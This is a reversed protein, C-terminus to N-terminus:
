FRGELGAPTRRDIGDRLRPWEKKSGASITFVFLNFEIIISIHPLNGNLFFFLFHELSDIVQLVGLIPNAKAAFAHLYRGKGYSAELFASKLQDCFRRFNVFDLFLGVPLDENILEKKIAAKLALVKPSNEPISALPQAM